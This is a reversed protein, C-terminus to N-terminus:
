PIVRGGGSYTRGGLNLHNASNPTESCDGFVNCYDFVIESTKGSDFKLVLFTRKLEYTGPGRPEDDDDAATEIPSEGDPSSFIIVNNNISLNFRNNASFTYDRTYSTIIGGLENVM